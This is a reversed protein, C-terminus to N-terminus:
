PQDSVGEHKQHLGMQKGSAVRTGAQNLGEGRGAMDQVGGRENETKM